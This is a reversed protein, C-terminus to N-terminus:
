GLSAAIDDQPIRRIIYQQVIWMDKEGLNAQKIVDLLVFLPLKELEPPLKIRAESM